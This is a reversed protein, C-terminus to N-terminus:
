GKQPFIKQDKGLAVDNRWKKSDNRIDEGRKVEGKSGNWIEEEKSRNRM